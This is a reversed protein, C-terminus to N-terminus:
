CATDRLGRRSARAARGESGHATGLSGRRDAGQRAHTAAAKGPRVSADQPAHREASARHFATPEGGKTIHNKITPPSTTSRGRGASQLSPILPGARQALQCAPGRTPTPRRGPPSATPRGEGRRGKLGPGPCWSAARLGWSQPGDTQSSARRHGTTDLHGAPWAQTGGPGRQAEAYEDRLLGTM